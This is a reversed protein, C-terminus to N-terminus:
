VQLWLPIRFFPNEINFKGKLAHVYERLINNFVFVVALATQGQSPREALNLPSIKKM